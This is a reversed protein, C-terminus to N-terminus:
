SASFDVGGNGWGDVALNKEMQVKFLVADVIRDLFTEKEGDLGVIGCNAFYTGQLLSCRFLIKAHIMQGEPIYEIGQGQPHSQVSGLEFGSVTKIMIGWRVM